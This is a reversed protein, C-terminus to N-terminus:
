IFPTYFLIFIRRTLNLLVAVLFKYYLWVVKDDTFMRKINHLYINKYTITCFM